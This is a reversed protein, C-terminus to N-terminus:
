KPASAKLKELRRLVLKEYPTGRCLILLDELRKINKITRKPESRVEAMVRAYAGAADKMKEKPSKPKDAEAKEEKVEKLRAMVTTELATGRATDMFESLRRIAEDYKSPNKEIWTEIAQFAVDPSTMTSPEIKAEAAVLLIPSLDIDVVENPLPAGPLHSGCAWCTLTKDAFPYKCLGCEGARAVPSLLIMALLFTM